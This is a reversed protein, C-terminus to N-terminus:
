PAPRRIGGPEVAADAGRCVKVVDDPDQRLGDAVRVGDANREQGGLLEAVRVHPPRDPRLLGPVHPLRDLVRHGRVARNEVVRRAVALAHEVVHVHHAAVLPLPASFIVPGERRVLHGFHLRLEDRLTHGRARGNGAGRGGRVEATAAATATASATTSSAASAAARIREVRRHRRLLKAIRAAEDQGGVLRIEPRRGLEHVRQDLRADRNM